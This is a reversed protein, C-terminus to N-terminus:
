NDETLNQYYLDRYYQDMDYIAWDPLLQPFSWHIGYAQCYSYWDLTDNENIHYRDEDPIWNGNICWVQDLGLDYFIHENWADNCDYYEVSSLPDSSPFSLSM